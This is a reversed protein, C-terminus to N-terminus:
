VRDFGQKIRSLIFNHEFCFSLILEEFNKRGGTM